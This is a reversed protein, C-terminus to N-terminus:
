LQLHISPVYSHGLQQYSPGLFSHNNSSSPRKVSPGPFHHSYNSLPPAFSPGPFHHSYNSSPPVFSPRPFHHSYNSSPPTFSHGLSHSFLQVLQILQQTVPSPTVLQISEEDVVSSLETLITEWDDDNVDVKSSAEPLDPTATIFSSASPESIASKVYVCLFFCHLM